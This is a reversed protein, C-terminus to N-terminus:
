YVGRLAHEFPKASILYVATTDAEDGKPFLRAHQFTAAV